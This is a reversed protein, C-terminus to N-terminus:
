EYAVKRQFPVVDQAQLIEDLGPIAARFDRDKPNCSCNHHTGLKSRTERDKNIIGSDCIPRNVPATSGGTRLNLENGLHTSSFM